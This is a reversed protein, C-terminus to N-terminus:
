KVRAPNNAIFAEWSGAKKSTKKITIGAKDAKPIRAQYHHCLAVALADSADMFQVTERFKLTHQLM